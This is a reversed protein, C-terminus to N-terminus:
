FEVEATHLLKSYKERGGGGGVVRGGPNFTQGPTVRWGTVWVSHLAQTM